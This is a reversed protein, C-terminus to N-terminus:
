VLARLWEKYRRAVDEIRPAVAFLRSSVGQRLEHDALADLAREMLRESNAWMEAGSATELYGAEQGCIVPTGSGQANALKVNSKWNQAAYGGQDRVAVAIDADALHLLAAKSEDVRFSWGRKACQANLFERWKGLYLPGGQYMVTQVKQRIPNRKLGPRAHHPLYLVPIGFPGCDDAMVKTAAVIATPAISRVHSELWDLCQQRNWENGHPQPWGDVLDLVIPAKIGAQSRKVVVVLDYGDTSVAKPEVTAGIAAGLQKGRIEWSGGKGGGTILVKM